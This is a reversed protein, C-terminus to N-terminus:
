QRENEAAFTPIELLGRDAPSDSVRDTETVVEGLMRGGCAEALRELFVTWTRTQVAKGFLAYGLFIPLNNIRARSRIRCVLRGGEDAYAGFTIRGAELHGSVTRLTLSHRDLHTVVVECRGYGRIDIKMRDNLALPAAQDRPHYFKALEEPSFRPFQLLIKELAQEPTCHSGELVAVYDRQLLPGAGDHALQLDGNGEGDRREGAPSRGDEREFLVAM